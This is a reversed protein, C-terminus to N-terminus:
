AYGFDDVDITMHRLSQRLGYVPAFLLATIAFAQVTTLLQPWAGVGLRAAIATLVIAVFLWILGQGWHYWISKERERSRPRIILVLFTYILAWAGAPGGTVLDMYLGLLFVCFITLSKSAYRPWLVLAFVPLYVASLGFLRLQAAWVLAIGFLLGLVAHFARGSRTDIVVGAM